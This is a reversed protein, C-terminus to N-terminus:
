CKIQWIEICIVNFTPQKSLMPSNFTASPNSFGVRFGDPLLISPKSGLLYTDSKACLLNHNLGSRRFCGALSQPIFRFVFIENSPTRSMDPSVDHPIFTGFRYDEATRILVLHAGCNQTARYFTRFSNGDESSIYRRRWTLYKYSCPLWKHIYLMGRETFIESEGILDPLADRECPTISPPVHANGPFSNPPTNSNHSLLRGHQRLSKETKLGKTTFALPLLSKEFASSKNPMELKPKVKKCRIGSWRLSYSLRECFFYTSQPKLLNQYPKATNFHDILAGVYDAQLCSRLVSIERERLSIKEAGEESCLVHSRKSRQVESM